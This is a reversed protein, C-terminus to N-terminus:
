EERRQKSGKDAIKHDASDRSPRPCEVAKILAVDVKMFGAIKTDDWGKERFLCVRKKQSETLPWPCTVETVAELNWGNDEAIDQDSKSKRESCVQQKDEDTLPCNEYIEEVEEKTVTLRQKTLREVAKQASWGEAKERCVLFVLDKNNLKCKANLSENRAVQRWAREIDVKRIYRFGIKDCCNDPNEPDNKDGPQFNAQEEQYLEDFTKRGRGERCSRIIRQTIRNKATYCSVTFGVRSLQNDLEKTLDYTENFGTSTKINNAFKEITDAVTKMDDSRNALESVMVGVNNLSDLFTQDTLNGRLFDWAENMIGLAETINAIQGQITTKALTINRLAQLAEDKIKTCQQSDDILKFVQFGMSAYNLGLSLGNKFAKAMKFAKSFRTNLRTKTNTIRTRFGSVFKGIKSQKVTSPGDSASVKLNVHQETSVQFVKRAAHRKRIIKALRIGAPVALSLAPLAINLANDLKSQYIGLIETYLIDEATNNKEKIIKKIEAVGNNMSIRVSPHISEIYREQEDDIQRLRTLVSEFEDIDEGIWLQEHEAQIQLDDAQDSLDKLEKKGAEFQKEYEDLQPEQLEGGCGHVAKYVAASLSVTTLVLNAVDGGIKFGKFVASIWAKKKPSEHEQKQPKLKPVENEKNEDQETELDDDDDDEDVERETDTQIYDHKSEYIPRRRFKAESFEQLLLLVCLIIVLRSRPRAM